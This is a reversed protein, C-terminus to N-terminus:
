TKERYNKLADRTADRASRLPDIISQDGISTLYRDLATQANEEAEILITEIGDGHSHDPRSTRRKAKPAARAKTKDGSLWARGKATIGFHRGEDAIAQGDKKILFLFNSVRKNEEDRMSPHEYIADSKIDPNDLILQLLARRLDDM